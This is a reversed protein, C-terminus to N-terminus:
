GLRETYRADVRYPLDIDGEAGYHVHFFTAETWPSWIGASPMPWQQDAWEIGRQHANWILGLFGGPRVVRAVETMARRADFWHFVATGVVTDVSQDALPLAEATGALVPVGPLRASLRDRMAAVPEVAIVDAGTAAILTTLAGTGAALDLVQRGPKIGLNNVLWAIADPPYSPGDWERTETAVGFGRRAM